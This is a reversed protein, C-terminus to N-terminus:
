STVIRGRVFEFWADLEAMRDAWRQREESAQGLRTLRVALGRMALPDPDLGLDAARRTAEDRRRLAHDIPARASNLEGEVRALDRQLSEKKRNWSTRRYVAFWLGIAGIGFLPGGVDPLGKGLAVIGAVLLALGGLSELVVPERKLATAVEGKLREHDAALRSDLEPVPLELDSGLGLLEAPSTDLDVPDPVEPEQERHYKVQERARLLNERSKTVSVEPRLDGSPMPPLQQLEDRIADATPGVLQVPEQPRQQWSVLAGLADDLLGKLEETDRPPAPNKNHLFRARRADNELRGARQEAEMARAMNLRRRLSATDSAREAVQLQLEEWKQRRGREEELAQGARSLDDIAKKLPGTANKRDLGVQSKRFDALREIASAATGGERATAAARQLQTQLSQAEELIGLIGAQSVFAVARFSDRELGLLRAGDFSGETVCGSVPRGSEYLASDSGSELNREIRIRGGDDLQVAARVIWGLEERWPRHRERFDRDEKRPQGRARRIGCLAAYLAALWTSKGVENPGHVVNFGPGLNLSRAAHPGFADAGISEFWV